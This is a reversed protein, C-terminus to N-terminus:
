RGLVELAEAYGKPSGCDLRRLRSARVARLRTGGDIAAQLIETLERAGGEVAGCVLAMLRPSFLYRAAIALRSATATPSPKELLRKVLGVADVELIGYMSVEGESVEEVLLAGDADGLGSILQAAGSGGSFVTDPLMVLVWGSVPAAVAHALGLPEGQVSYGFGRSRSFEEIEPKQASGVVWFREIGAARAEDLVAEIVTKGALPLLEKPAGGTVSSMRTGLGAAPLLALIEQSADIL